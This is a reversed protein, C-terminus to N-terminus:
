KLIKVANFCGNFISTYNIVKETNLERIKPLFSLSFCNNFMSCM